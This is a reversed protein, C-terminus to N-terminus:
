RREYAVGNKWITVPKVKGQYYFIQRFDDLDYAQFDALKNLSLEGRDVLGLAASARVTLGALTEAITLNEGAGLMCAQLLLDGMPASGPNWDSAIAVCAGADLLKRAPAYPMGLGLSAGPLVVSVIESIGLKRIESENSAELHDVSRAGAAVATDSGGCTFQDGHVTLDFGMERAAKLYAISEEPTFASKEIFIDVRNALSAKKIVPLLEAILLSLYMENSGDFDHPKMHAALCTPVLDSLSSQNAESIAQLIKMEEEVSLGYGSKIEITTVGEGFHRAAREKVLNALREQSAARTKEVTSWIGGGRAAIELYSIGSLRDAYDQSRDGDWCIHTHADIFGPLVIAGEAVTEKQATPYRQVLDNYEGTELVLGNDSLIGADSLVTIQSDSISGREPLNACPLLQRFPGHLIM